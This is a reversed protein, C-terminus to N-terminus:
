YSAYEYDCNTAGKCGHRTPCMKVGSGTFSTNNKRPEREVGEARENLKQLESQTTNLESLVKNSKGVEKKESSSINSKQSENQQAQNKPDSDELDKGDSDKSREDEVEDQDEDDQPNKEVDSEDDEPKNHDDDDIVDNDIDNEPTETAVEEYEPDLENMDM